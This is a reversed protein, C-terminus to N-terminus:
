WRSLEPVGNWARRFDADQQYGQLEFQDMVVDALLALRALQDDSWDRPVFDVVCLTGLVLDDGTILPMGAYATVGLSLVAPHDRLVPDTGADRVILPRGQAVAHQCISFELPTCGAAALDEPLGVQSLFVQSDATVITLMCSPADVLDAALGVLRDLVRARTGDVMLARQVARLRSQDTLADLGDM